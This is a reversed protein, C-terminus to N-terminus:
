KNKYIIIHGGQIADRGNDVTRTVYVRYTETEGYIKNFLTDEVEANPFLGNLLPEAVKLYAAELDRSPYNPIELDDILPTLEIKCLEDEKFTCIGLFLVNKWSIRGYVEKTFKSDWILEFEYDDLLQKPTYTWNDLDLQLVKEVPKLFFSGVKELETGIGGKLHYGISEDIGLITNIDYIGFNDPNLLYEDDEEGCFFRWGSDQPNDPEERYMYRVKKKGNVLMKTAIVFGFNEM